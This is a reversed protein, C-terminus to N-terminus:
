DIKCFTGLVEIDKYHKGNYLIHPNIYIKASATRAGDSVISVFREKHGEVDFTIQRYENYLRHLNSINFDILECFEKMTLPEIEKLNDVTIDKCLINFETNIYPLLQFVYGLHRHKSTPTEKYLQRVANIYFKRYPYENFSNSLKGKQFLRTNAHLNGDDDKFIFKPSVENYFRSATSKNINLIKPLDVSKMPTTRTKMLSDSNYKLFTCIYVLRTVSSPSIEKYINSGYIFCFHGLDSLAQKKLQETQKKDAYIKQQQPTYIKTGIPVTVTKMEFVEGTSTQVAKTIGNDDTFYEYRQIETLIKGM